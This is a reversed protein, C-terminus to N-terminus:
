LICKTISFQFFRSFTAWPERSHCVGRVGPTHRTQGRKRQAQGEADPWRRLGQHPATSMVAM